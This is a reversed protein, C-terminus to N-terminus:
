GLAKFGELIDRVGRLSEPKEALAIDVYAQRFRALDLRWYNGVFEALVAKGPFVRSWTGDKLAGTLRAKRELV